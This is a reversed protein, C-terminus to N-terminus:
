AAVKYLAQSPGLNWILSRLDNKIEAVLLDRTNDDPNELVHIFQELRALAVVEVQTLATALALQKRLRHFWPILKQMNANQFVAENAFFCDILGSIKLPTEVLEKVYLPSMNGFVFGLPRARGNWYRKFVNIACFQFLQQGDESFNITNTYPQQKYTFNASGLSNIDRVNYYYLNLDSLPPKKRGAVKVETDRVTTWDNICFDEEIFQYTSGQIRVAAFRRTRIEEEWLTAAKLKSAEENNANLPAHHGLLELQESEIGSDQSGDKIWLTVCYPFASVGDNAGFAKSSFLLCKDLKYGRCGIAAFNSKKLIYSFPLLMVVAKPKLRFALKLFCIGLDKHAVAPDIRIIRKGNQIETFEEDIYKGPNEKEQTGFRRNKCTLRNYPPHGLIIIDTADERICFAARSASQLSNLCNIATDNFRSMLNIINRDMEFSHFEWEKFQRAFGKFGACLDWLSTGPDLFKPNQKSDCATLLEKALLIAGLPARFMGQAMRRSSNMIQDYYTLVIREVFHPDDLYFAHTVETLWDKEAKNLTKKTEKPSNPSFVVRKNSVQRPEELCRFTLAALDPDVDRPLQTLLREIFRSLPLKATTSRLL